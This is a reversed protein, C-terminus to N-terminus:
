GCACVPFPVHVTSWTCVNQLQVCVLNLAYLQKKKYVCSQVFMSFGLITKFSVQIGGRFTKIKIKCCSCLYITILYLPWICMCHSWIVMDSIMRIFLLFVYVISPNVNGISIGITNTVLLITEGTTVRKSCKSVSIIIYTFAAVSVYIDHSCFKLLPWLGKPNDSNFPM